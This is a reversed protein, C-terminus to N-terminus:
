LALDLSTSFPPLPGLWPDLNNDNSFYVSLEIGRIETATSTYKAAETIPADEWCQTEKALVLQGM